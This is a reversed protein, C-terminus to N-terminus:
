EGPGAAPLRPGEGSDGWRTVGGSLIFAMVEASEAAVPEVQAMPVVILNGAFGYSQPIYVTVQDALGFQSLSEQTLFGFVRVTGGAFLTVLVPKDFKRKEGVFANLLDRTSGYLLRVFPLRDLLSEILGLLGRTLLNSALFGVATILAITIVFGVGPIRLGLWGDITTFIEVCVYATIAIPAVFALGRFFSNLLRAVIGSEQAM